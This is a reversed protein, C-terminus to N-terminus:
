LLKNLRNAVKYGFGNKAYMQYKYIDRSIGTKFRYIDPLTDKNLNCLDYYKSGLSKSIKIAEWQLLEGQGENKVGFVSAGKYYHMFNKNGLIFLGSIPEGNKYAVLIFAQNKHAYKQFIKNYYEFTLQNYGLKDHLQKLIPWYKRLGETTFYSKVVIGQKLAKRIMNRRKSHIVKAFIEDEDLSLDVMATEGIRINASDVDFDKEYPFGVYSISEFFGISFNAYDIFHEGVFGAYPIDYLPRFNYKKFSFRNKTIHIPACSTIHSPNDILYYLETNFSEEVIRNLDVEHFVSGNNQVIFDSIKHYYGGEPKVLKFDKFKLM